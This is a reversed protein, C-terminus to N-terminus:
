NKGKKGLIMKSANEINEDTLEPFLEKINREINSFDWFERYSDQGVKILKRMKPEIKELDIYVFHPENPRVIILKTGKWYKNYGDLYKFLYKGDKSNDRYKVEILFTEETKTNFAVFDPMSKIKLAIPDIEKRLVEKLNVIHNEIGFKICKWNPLFSILFSVASEGNDGITRDQNFPDNTESM